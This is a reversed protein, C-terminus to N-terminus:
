APIFDDKEYLPNELYPVQTSEALKGRVLISERVRKAEDESNIGYCM